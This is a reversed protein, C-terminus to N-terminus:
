HHSVLLTPEEYGLTVWVSHMAEDLAGRAEELKSREKLGAHKLLRDTEDRVRMLSAITGASMEEYRDRAAAPLNAITGGGPITSVVYQSVENVRERADSLAQTIRESLFPDETGLATKFRCVTCM